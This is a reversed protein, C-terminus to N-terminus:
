VTVDQLSQGNLYCGRHEESLKATQYHEHHESCERFFKRPEHGIPIELVADDNTILRFTIVYAENPDAERLIELKLVELCQKVLCSHM